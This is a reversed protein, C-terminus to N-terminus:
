NQTAHVPRHHKMRAGVRFILLLALVAAYVGAELYAAKIMLIYHAAAAIGAVYVLRHLRRWTAGGLRRIMGDTSTIALALLITFAVMGITIYVRKVIDKWIAPFDFAQDLGMYSLLHLLAYTFAFLGVMRRYRALSNWGTIMRAPTVALAILLFRLAWDGLFRVIAEIPNAGLGGAVGQYALWVLPLMCIVFVAPKLFRAAGSVYV